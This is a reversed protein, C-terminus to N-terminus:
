AAENLHVSGAATGLLHIASKEICNFASDCYIERQFPSSLRVVSSENERPGAVVSEKFRERLPPTCTELINILLQPRFNIAASLISVRPPEHKFNMQGAHV